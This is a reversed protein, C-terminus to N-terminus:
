IRIVEILIFESFELFTILLKGVVGIWISFQMYEGNVMYNKKLKEFVRLVKSLCVFMNRKM